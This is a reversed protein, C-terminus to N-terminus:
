FIFFRLNRLNRLNGISSVMFLDVVLLSPISATPAITIIQDM